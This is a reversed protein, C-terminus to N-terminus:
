LCQICRRRYPISKKDTQTAQKKAAVGAIGSGSAHHEFCGHVSYDEIFDNTLAMWGIAGAIDNKGKLITGDVLIGAGIGTGVALFIAHKCGVAIGKWSEGLIYCARDSEIKISVENPLIKRLQSHLPYKEWGKINPAWVTGSEPYYIGPVAVGLAVARMSKEEATRVLQQVLKVALDAAGDENSTEITVKEQM